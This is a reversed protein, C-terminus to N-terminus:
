VIHHRGEYEPRWRTPDYQYFLPDKDFFYRAPILARFGAAPDGNASVPLAPILVFDLEEYHRLHAVIATGVDTIAYTKHVNKRLAKMDPFKRVQARKQEIMDVWYRRIHDLNDSPRILRIAENLLGVKDPKGVLQIPDESTVHCCCTYGIGADSHKEYLTMQPPSPTPPYSVFAGKESALELKLEYRLLNLVSGNFKLDNWVQTVQESM